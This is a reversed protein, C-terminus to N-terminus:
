ACVPDLSDAIQVPQVDGERRDEISDQQSCMRLKGRVLKQANCLQYSIPCINTFCTRKM